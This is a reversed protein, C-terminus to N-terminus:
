DIVSGSIDINVTDKYGDDWMDECIVSNGWGLNIVKIDKHTFHKEIFPKIADYSELWDFTKGETERYREEWYNPDGYDSM